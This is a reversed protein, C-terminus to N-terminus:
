WFLRKQTGSTVIVSLVHTNRLKAISRGLRNALKFPSIRLVRPHICSRHQSAESQDVRKFRGLVTAGLIADGLVARRRDLLFRRIAGGAGRRDADGATGVVDDAVGRRLPAVLRLFPLEGIGEVLRRVAIGAVVVAVQHPQRQVLVSRYSHLGCSRLSLRSRHIGSIAESM